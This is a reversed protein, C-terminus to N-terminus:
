RLRVRVASVPGPVEAPLQVVLAQERQEWTLPAGHGLLHVEAVELGSDRGLSRIAAQGASPKAMQFAYVTGDKATFRFDQETWEQEKEQFPGEPVGTPGEGFVRWPRTGYIGEGHVRMWDRLCRLIYLCEDDLTGDPRQPLNLLLNGNKSVIDVLMTIVHRPTKYARRVDYFWGGVCTDTQWPREAIGSLQGREIDLVGVTHVEPNKDKQTYVARNAGHLQASTNYLHAIIHLGVEGFPVGGDSYLLDPRYQDILDKIRLFWREHWWPNDTYWRGQEGRNPLYLDEYEPDNGDYPVGAYPGDPDAGKNAVMWCFSAGLHESVGFPLGRARAAEAWAGVIDRRPGVQVANWRHHRSNWNDFNDHHVAQAVFYRAGAEVYLAMLADPDFREARWLRVIDKYGHRSPHGYVRWHHRYQAETPIYMNRAYWDGYMPVSQPGWHAWIGFKADRFWDPCSFGRLSEWTPAFPGSAIPHEQLFAPAAV